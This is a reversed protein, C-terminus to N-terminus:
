NGSDDLRDLIGESLIKRQDPTLDKCFQGIRDVMEHSLRAREDIRNHLIETIADVNFNKASMEDSINKRTELRKEMRQNLISEIDKKLDEFKVKQADTLNLEQSLRDMRFELFDHGSGRHFNRYAGSQATHLEFFLLLIGAPIAILLAKKM